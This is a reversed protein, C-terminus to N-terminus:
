RSLLLHLSPPHIVENTEYTTVYPSDVYATVLVLNNTAYTMIDQKFGALGTNNEHLYDNTDNFDELYPCLLPYDVDLIQRKMADQCSNGLKVALLSFDPSTLFMKNPFKYSSTSISNEQRSCSTLCTMGSSEERNWRGVQHVYKTHVKEYIM